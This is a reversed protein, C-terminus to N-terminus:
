LLHKISVQKMLDSSVQVTLGMKLTTPVKKWTLATRMRVASIVMVTVSMSMQLSLLICMLPQLLIFEICAFKYAKM